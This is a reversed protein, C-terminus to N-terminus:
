KWLYISVGVRPRVFPLALHDLEEEGRHPLRHHAAMRTVMDVDSEVLVSLLLLMRLLTL